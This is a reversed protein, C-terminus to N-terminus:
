LLCKVDVFDLGDKGAEQQILLNTINFIQIHFYILYFFNDFLVTFHVVKNGDLM